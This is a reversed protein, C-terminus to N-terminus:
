SLPYESYSIVLIILSIYVHTVSFLEKFLPNQEGLDIQTMVSNTTSLWKTDKASLVVIWDKEISQTIATFSMGAIAGLVPLTYLLNRRVKSRYVDDLGATASTDTITNLYACVAYAASVAVFKIVLAIRVAVLRNTKDLFAGIAGMFLFIAMACCLGTLAVLYLSNNTLQAVLLVIGMDWMRSVFAFFFHMIYLYTRNEFPQPQHVRPAVLMDEMNIARRPVKSTFDSAKKSM